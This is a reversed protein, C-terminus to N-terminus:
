VRHEPESNPAYLDHLSSNCEHDQVSSCLPGHFFLRHEGERATEEEFPVGAREFARRAREMVDSM